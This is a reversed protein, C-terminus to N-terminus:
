LKSNRSFALKNLRIQHHRLNKQQLLRIGYAVKNGEHKNKELYKLSHDEYRKFLFISQNMLLSNFVGLSLLLQFEKKTIGVVKNFLGPEIESIVDKLCKERHDTLYM